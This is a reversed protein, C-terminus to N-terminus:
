LGEQKAGGMSRGHIVERGPWGFRNLFEFKVREPKWCLITLRAASAEGCSQWSDANGM